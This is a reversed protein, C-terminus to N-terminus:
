YVVIAQRQAPQRRTTQHSAGYRVRVEPYSTRQHVTVIQVFPAQALDLGQDLWVRLVTINGGNVLVLKREKVARVSHLGATQNVISDTQPNETLGLSPRTIWVEAVPNQCHQPRAERARAAGSRLKQAEADFLSVVRSM